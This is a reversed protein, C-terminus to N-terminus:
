TDRAPKMPVQADKVGGQPLSCSGSLLESLPAVVSIAGDFARLSVNGTYIWQALMAEVTTQLRSLRSMPLPPSIVADGGTPDRRAVDPIVRCLRGTGM